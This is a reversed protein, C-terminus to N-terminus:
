RGPAAARERAGLRQDRLELGLARRAQAYKGREYLAVGRSQALAV